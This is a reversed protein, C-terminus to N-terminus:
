CIHSLYCQQIYLSLDHLNVCFIIQEYIECNSYNVNYKLLIKVLFVKEFRFFYHM